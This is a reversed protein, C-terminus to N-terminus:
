ALAKVAQRFGTIFAAFSRDARAARDLDVATMLDEAWEMGGLLPTVGADMVSEALMQKYRDRDFQLDPAQCGKGLVHKFAQGDLLLWREVHPEPIAYVVATPLEPLGLQAKRTAMGYSNGDTAIVLLDPFGGAATLDKLYTKLERAVGGFGRTTNRWRLSPALDVEDLLRNVLTSIVIQHASDEVFLDIRDLMSIAGYSRTRSRSITSVIPKSRM